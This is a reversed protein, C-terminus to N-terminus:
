NMKIEVLVPWCKGTLYITKSSQKYAIGNLVYGGDISMPNYKVNAQALLNSCDIKNTIIGTLPDIVIIDNQGYLNAYIKGEIYELENIMNQYGFQNYVGITKQIEFTKPNVFYLNSSGTSIILSSDNHTIGWGEYPWNQEGIKKLSKVDYIFVKNEQWTLQFIKGDFVTIGEGFYTPDLKIKQGITKFKNDMKYLVSKGKIGTGEILYDDNWELGQTYSSTDHPYIKILTYNLPLPANITSNNAKNDVDNNDTSNSSNNCSIVTLSIILIYIRRM